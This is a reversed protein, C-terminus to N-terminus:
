SLCGGAFGLTKLSFCDKENIFLEDSPQTIAFHSLELLTWRPARIGSCRLAPWSIYYVLHLPADETFIEYFNWFLLENFTGGFNSAQTFNRYLTTCLIPRRRFNLRARFKLGKIGPWDFKSPYDDIAKSRRQPTMKARIKWLFADISLDKGLSFPSVKNALIRRSSSSCRENSTWWSLSFRESKRGIRPRPGADRLSCGNETTIIVRIAKSEISSTVLFFFGKWELFFSSRLQEVSRSRDRKTKSLRCSAKRRTKGHMESTHLAKEGRKERSSVCHISRQISTNITAIPRTTTSISGKWNSVM